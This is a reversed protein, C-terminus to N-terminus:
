CALLRAELDSQGPEMGAGVHHSVANTVRTVPIWLGRKAVAPVM